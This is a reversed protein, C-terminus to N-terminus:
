QGPPPQSRWVGSWIHSKENVLTGFAHLSSRLKLLPGTAWVGVHSKHSSSGQFSTMSARTNAHVQSSVVRGVVGM